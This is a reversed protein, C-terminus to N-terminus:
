KGFARSKIFWSLLKCLFTFQECNKKHDTPFSCMIKSFHTFVHNVRYVELHDVIDLNGETQLSWSHYFRFMERPSERLNNKSKWIRSAKVSFFSGAKGYKMSFYHLINWCVGPFTNVIKNTFHPIKWHLM